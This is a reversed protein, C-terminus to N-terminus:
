ESQNTLRQESKAMHVAKHCKQCLWIVDLPKSYDEHHAQVKLAGCDRCPRRTLTGNRIAANVASGVKRILPNKATARDAAARYVDPNKSYLYRQYAAESGFNKIRWKRTAALKREKNKQYYEKSYRGVQSM